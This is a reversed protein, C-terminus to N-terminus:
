NKAYTATEQLRETVLRSLVLLFVAMDHGKGNVCEEADFPELPRVYEAYVEQIRETTWARQFDISAQQLKARIDVPNKLLEGGSEQLYQDIAQSM